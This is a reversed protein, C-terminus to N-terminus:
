AAQPTLTLAADRAHAAIQASSWGLRRCDDEDIVADVGRAELLCALDEAMRGRIAASDRMAARPMPWGSGSKREMRARAHPRTASRGPAVGASVVPSM